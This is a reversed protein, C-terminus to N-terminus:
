SKKVFFFVSTLPAWTTTPKWTAWLQLVKREQLSNCFEIRPQESALWARTRQNYWLRKIVTFKDKNWTVPPELPIPFATAILSAFHPALMVIRARFITLSWPSIDYHMCINCCHVSFPVWITATALPTPTPSLLSNLLKTTGGNWFSDNLVKWIVILKIQM